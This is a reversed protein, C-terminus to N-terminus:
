QASTTPTGAHERRRRQAHQARLLPIQFRAGLLQDRSCAARDTIADIVWSSGRRDVAHLAQGVHDGRRTRARDGVLLLFRARRDALACDSSPEDVVDQVERARLGASRPAALGVSMAASTSRDGRRHRPHDAGLLDVELRDDRGLQREHLGVIAPECVHQHFRTDLATFNV